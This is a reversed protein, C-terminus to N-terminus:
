NLLLVSFMEKSEHTWMFLGYIFKKKKKKVSFFGLWIVLHNLSLLQEAPKVSKVLVKSTSIKIFFLMVNM